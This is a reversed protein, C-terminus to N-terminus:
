GQEGELSSESPGSCTGLISGKNDRHWPEEVAAVQMGATAGGLAKNLANCKVPQHVQSTHTPDPRTQLTLNSKFPGLSM